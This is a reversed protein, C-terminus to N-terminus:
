TNKVKELPFITKVLSTGLSTLLKFFYTAYQWMFNKHTSRLNPNSLNLVIFFWSPNPLLLTTKQVSSFTQLLFFLLVTCHVTCMYLRRM